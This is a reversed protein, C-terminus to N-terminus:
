RDQWARLKKDLAAILVTKTHLPLLFLRITLNPPLNLGALKTSFTQHHKRIEEEFESCYVDHCEDHNGLCDSEYTLLVPICVRKFVSDLSKNPSLLQELQAAHASAKDIKGKIWVFEDRLYDRKTHQDIEVLVDRIAAGIKKYFKVEGIWLEMDEPPGVVHVADFGKVTDNASTKYYIKSIAPISKFVTRVAAHLFVEGFEGRNEFKKSEYVKRAAERMLRVMNGPHIGALESYSLAFDPLWEMIHAAFEEARWNKLEYGVCLGTINPDVDLDHVRIEWFPDPHPIQYHSM